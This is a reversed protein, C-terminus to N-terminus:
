VSTNLLLVIDIQRQIYHALFHLTNRIDHAVYGGHIVTLVACPFYLQVTWATFVHLLLPAAYPFYFHLQFENVKSNSPTSSHAERKSTGSYSSKLIHCGGQTEWICLCSHLGDVCLNLTVTKSQLYLVMVLSYVLLTLVFNNQMYFLKWTLRVHLIFEKKCKQHLAQHSNSQLLQFMYGYDIIAVYFNHM